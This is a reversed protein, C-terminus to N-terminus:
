SGAGGQAGAGELYHHMKRVITRVTMQDTLGKVGLSRGVALLAGRHAAEREAAPRARHVRDIVGRVTSKGKM